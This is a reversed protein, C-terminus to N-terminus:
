LVPHASCLGWAPEGAATETRAACGGPWEGRGWRREGSSERRLAGHIGTERRGPAARSPIGASGDQQLRALLKGDRQRHAAREREPEEWKKEGRRESTNGTGASRARSWPECGGQQEVPALAPLLRRGAEKEQSIRGHPQYPIENGLSRGSRGAPPEPISCSGRSRHLSPIGPTRPARRSVSAAHAEGAPSAPSIEKLSRPDPLAKAEPSPAQLM